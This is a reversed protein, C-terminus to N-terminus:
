GLVVAGRGSLSVFLTFPIPKRRGMNSHIYLGDAWNLPSGTESWRYRGGNGAGENGTPIEPLSKFAAFLISNSFLFVAVIADTPEVSM